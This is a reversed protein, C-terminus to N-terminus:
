RDLCKVVAVVALGFEVMTILWHWELDPFSDSYM